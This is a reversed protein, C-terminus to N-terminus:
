DSGNSRMLQVTNFRGVVDLNAILPRRTEYDVIVIWSTERRELKVHENKLSDVVEQSQQLHKKQEKVFALLEQLRLATEDLQDLQVKFDRKALEQQRRRADEAIVSILMVILLLPFALIGILLVEKPWGAVDSVMRAM